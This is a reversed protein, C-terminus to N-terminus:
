ALAALRHRTVTNEAEDRLPLAHDNVAAIALINELEHLIRLAVDIHLPVDLIVLTKHHTQVHKAFVALIKQPIDTLRDRLGVGIDDAHLHARLNGKYVSVDYDFPFIQLM